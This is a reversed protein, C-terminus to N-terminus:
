HPQLFWAAIKAYTEQSMGNGNLFKNLTSPHLGMQEAAETKSIGYKKLYCEIAFVMRTM